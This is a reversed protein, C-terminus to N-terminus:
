NLGGFNQLTLQAEVTAEGLVLKRGITRRLDYAYLNGRHTLYLAEGRTDEVRGKAADGRVVLPRSVAGLDPNQYLRRLDEIRIERHLGAATAIAEAEEISGITGLSKAKDKFRVSGKVGDKSILLRELRRAELGDRCVTIKAAFPAGQERMRLIYRRRKTVGVKAIRGFIALYVIHPTNCDPTGKVCRSGNCLACPDKSSSLVTPGFARFSIEKGRELPLVVDEGEIRMRLGEVGRPLFTIGRVISSQM